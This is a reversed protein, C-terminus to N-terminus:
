DFQKLQSDWFFIIKAFNQFINKQEPLIEFHKLKSDLMIKKHLIEQFNILSNWSHSIKWVFVTTAYNWVRPIM